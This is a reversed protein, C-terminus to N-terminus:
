VARQCAKKRHARIITRCMMWPGVLVFCSLPRGGKTKKLALASILESIGKEMNGTKFRGIYGIIRRDQPLQLRQRCEAKAPAKRFSSVEVGHYCVILKDAPCGCGLLNEKIEHALAVVRQLCKRQAIYRFLPRELRSLAVHAEYVTPLGLLVLWFAVPIERTYYIDANEKRSARAAFCGWLLAHIFFFVGFVPKPLLRELLLVDRNPLTRVTFVPPIGYYGFVNIQQLSPDPQNRHPHLLNVDIDNRAFAECM